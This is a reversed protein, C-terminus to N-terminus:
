KGEGKSSCSWGITHARMNACIARLMGEIRDLQTQTEPSLRGVEIVYGEPPSITVVHADNLQAWASEEPPRSDLDGCWSGRKQPDADWRYIIHKDAPCPTPGTYNLQASASGSMLLLVALARTM